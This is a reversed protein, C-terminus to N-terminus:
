LREAVPLADPNHNNHSIQGGPGKAHVVQCNGCGSGRM